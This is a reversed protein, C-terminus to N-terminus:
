GIICGDKEVGVETVHGDLEFKLEVGLDADGIGNLRPLAMEDGATPSLGKLGLGDLPPPLSLDLEPGM